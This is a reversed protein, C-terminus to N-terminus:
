QFIDHMTRAVSKYTGRLSTRVRKGSRVPDVGLTVWGTNRKFKMIGNTEILNDLTSANVYELRLDPYYVPILMSDQSYQTALGKAIIIVAVIVLSITGSILVTMWSTTIM